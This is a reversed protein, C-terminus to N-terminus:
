GESRPCRFRDAILVPDSDESFIERVIAVAARWRLKEPDTTLYPPFEHEPLKPLEIDPPLGGDCGLGPQAM